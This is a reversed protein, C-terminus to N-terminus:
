PSESILTMMEATEGLLREVLILLRILSNWYGRKPGPCIHSIHRSRIRSIPWSTRISCRTVAM